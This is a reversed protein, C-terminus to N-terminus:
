EEALALNQFVALRPKYLNERDQDVIAIDLDKKPTVATDSEVSAVHNGASDNHVHEEPTQIEDSANSDDDSQEQSSTWSSSWNGNQGQHIFRCRNGYPCIGTNSFTKCIETKYKPHRVVPRLEHGGHAFQCKHGYRCIGTDQFSRCLETKYLNQRQIEDEIVQKEEVKKKKKCGAAPTMTPADPSPEIAVTEESSDDQQQTSPTSPLWPNQTKSDKTIFTLKDFPRAVEEVIQQEKDDVPTNPNVILESKKEKKEKKEKQPIMAKKLNQAVPVAWSTSWQVPAPNEVKVNLKSPVGKSAPLNNSRPWASPTQVGTWASLKTEQITAM